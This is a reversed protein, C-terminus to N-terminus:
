LLLDSKFDDELWHLLLQDMWYYDHSVANRGIFGMHGGQKTQWINVSSPVHIEQILSADIFPDDEALLIETQCRIKSLFHKSSCKLYYDDANEFGGLPATITQDFEYISSVKHKMWTQTQRALSKLFHMEYFFHMRKGIALVTQKLDIPTCVAFCRKIWRTASEGLEGAFKLAVNAGLSFGILTVPSEPAEIKYAELVKLLDESCGAHYPLKSLGKGSGCGRLNVRIVRYGKDFSKKAMRIMYKAEHSGGLGHLMVVTQDTLQWKPPTSMECSLRDDDSLNVFWRASEPALQASRFTPIITQLHKSSTGLLPQFDLWRVAM